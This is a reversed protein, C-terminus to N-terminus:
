ALPRLLNPARPTFVSKVVGTESGVQSLICRFSYTHTYIYIYMRVYVYKSLQSSIEWNEYYIIINVHIYVYVSTHICCAHIYTRFDSYAARSLRPFQVARLNSSLVAGESM